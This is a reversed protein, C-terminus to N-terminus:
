SYKTKNVSVKAWGTEGGDEGDVDM